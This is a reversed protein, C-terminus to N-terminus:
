KEDKEDRELQADGSPFEVLHADPNLCFDTKNGIIIRPFDASAPIPLPPRPPTQQARYENIRTCFHVRRERAQAGTWKSGDANRGMDCPGCVLPGDMSPRTVPTGCYLCPPPSEIEVEIPRGLLGQDISYRM